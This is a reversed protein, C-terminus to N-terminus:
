YAISNRLLKLSKRRGSGSLRCNLYEKVDEGGEGINENCGAEKKDPPIVGEM